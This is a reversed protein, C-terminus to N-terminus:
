EIRSNFWIVDAISMYESPITVSSTYKSNVIM